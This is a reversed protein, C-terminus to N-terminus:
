LDIKRSTLNFKVKLIQIMKNVEGRAQALSFYEQTDSDLVEFMIEEANLVVISAGDRDDSFLYTDSHYCQSDMLIRRSVEFPELCIGVKIKDLSAMEYSKRDISDIPESEISLGVNPFKCEFISWGDERRYTVEGGHGEAIQKVYALGLGTGGEKGYTEGRKFM